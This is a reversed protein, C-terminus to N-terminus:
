GAVRPAGGAEVFGFEGREGGAMSGCRVQCRVGQIRMRTAPKWCSVLVKAGVRPRSPRRRIAAGAKGAKSRPAPSARAAQRRGAQRHAAEDAVRARARSSARARPRPRRWARRRMDRAVGELADGACRRSARARRPRGRRWRGRGARRPPPRAHRRSRLRAAAAGARAHDAGRHRMTALRSRCALTVRACAAGHWRSSHRGCRGARRCPRCRRARRRAAPAGGARRAGPGRVLSRRGKRSGSFACHVIISGAAADISSRARAPRAAAAHAQAERHAERRGVEGFAPRHDEAVARHRSRARGHLRQRSSRSRAARLHGSSRSCGASATARASASAALAAVLRHDDGVRLVVGAGAAVAVGGAHQMRQECGAGALAERALHRQAQQVVRRRRAGRMGGADAGPELQASPVRRAGGEVALEAVRRHRAAELHQRQAVAHHASCPGIVAPPVAVSPGM